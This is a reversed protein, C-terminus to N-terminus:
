QLVRLKINRFAAWDGHDQLGIHGETALGYHPWAAFKSAAVRAKWDASGLEYEAMKTGNLWHEVHSGRVLIRAHNWEGAPRVIGRPAPYLGYVAGASTLQSAGDAHAADDLVQMEPAGEYIVPVSETVRYFVGSNGGARVKWDLTLEFDRFQDTTVIDGGSGLHTLAGDVVRWGDSLGSQRFGRWGATTRGDFLLRWGADREEATLQNANMMAVDGQGRSALPTACAAAVECLLAVVAI